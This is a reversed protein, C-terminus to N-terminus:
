NTSERVVISLPSTISVWIAARSCFRNQSCMKYETSEDYSLLNNQLSNERGAMKGMGAQCGRAGCRNGDKCYCGEGWEKENDNSSVSVEIM